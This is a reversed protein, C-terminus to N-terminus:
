WTSICVLLIFASAFAKTQGRVRVCVRLAAVIDKNPDFNIAYLQRLVDYYM